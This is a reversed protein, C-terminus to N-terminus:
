AHRRARRLGAYGILGTLGSVLLVLSGPEPVVVRCPDICCDGEEEWRQEFGEGSVTVDNCLQVGPPANDRVTCTITITVTTNAAVDGAEVTVWQGVISITGRSTAVEDIKLYASVQDTFVVDYRTAAGANWTITFVVQDGPCASDVDVTKVPVTQQQANRQAPTAWASSGFSPLGALLLAVFVFGVIGWGRNMRRM